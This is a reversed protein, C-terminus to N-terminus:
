FDGVRDKANRTALPRFLSPNVTSALFRVSGDALLVQIGGLHNAHHDAKASQLDVLIENESADDPQMWHVAHHRAEAILITESAGDTVDGLATTRPGCFIADPATVAVYNTLLKRHDTELGHRAHYKIIKSLESIDSTDAYPQNQRRTLM